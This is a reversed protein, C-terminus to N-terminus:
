EALEFLVTVRMGLKLTEPSDLKVIAEVVKVDMREKAEGTSFRKQGAANSVREVSAPFFRGPFADATIRCHQGAFIKPFDAEDVDARIRLEQCNALGAVPEPPVSGVTEGPNRFKWVIVGPAPALLRTKALEAQALQAHARSQELKAGAEAIRARATQQVRFSEAQAAQLQAQAADIDEVRFGSQLGKLRASAADARAVAAESARKTRDRDAATWAGNQIASKDAYRAAEERANAAEAEAVRFEAEAQQVEEKRHGAQLKKLEAQLQAIRCRAKEQDASIDAGLIDLNAQSAKVQAECANVRAVLDANELEAIVQGAKVTQGEKIQITRLTGSIPFALQLVGGEPEVLGPAAVHRKFTSETAAAAGGPAATRLLTPSSLVIVAIVLLAALPKLLARWWVMQARAPKRGAHATARDSAPQAPTLDKPRSQAMRQVDERRFRLRGQSRFGPLRGTSVLLEFKQKQMKLASRADDAEILDDGQMM